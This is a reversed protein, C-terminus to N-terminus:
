RAAVAARFIRQFDGPLNGLLWARQRASLSAAMADGLEKSSCGDAEFHAYDFRMDYFYLDAPGPATTSHRYFARADAFVLRGDHACGGASYHGVITATPFAGATAFTVTRGTRSSGAGGCGAALLVCAILVLRRM